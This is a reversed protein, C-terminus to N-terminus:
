SAPGADHRFLAAPVISRVGNERRFGSNRMGVPIPARSHLFQRPWSTPRIPTTPFLPSEFELIQLTAPANADSPRPDHPAAYGKRLRSIYENVADPQREQSGILFQCEYHRIASHDLRNSPVDAPSAVPVEDHCRGIRNHQWRNKEGSL